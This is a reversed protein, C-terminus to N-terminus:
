RGMLSGQLRPARHLYLCLAGASESSGSPSPLLGKMRDDYGDLSMTLKETLNNKQKYIAALNLPGKLLNTLTWNVSRMNRSLLYTVSQSRLENVQM